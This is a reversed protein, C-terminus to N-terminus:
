DVLGCSEVASIKAVDHGSECRFGALGIALQNIQKPTNCPTFVRGSSIIPQFHADLIPEEVSQTLEPTKTSILM